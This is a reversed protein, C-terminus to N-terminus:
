VNKIDGKIKIQQACGKERSFFLYLAFNTKLISINKPAWNVFSSHQFSLLPCRFIYMAQFCVLITGIKRSLYPARVQVQFTSTRLVVFKKEKKLRQGRPIAVPLSM